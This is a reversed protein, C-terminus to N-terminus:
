IGTRPSGADDGDRNTPTPDTNLRLNHELNNEQHRFHPVRQDSIAMYLRKQADELSAIRAKGREEATKVETPPPTVVRRFQPGKTQKGEPQNTLMDIIQLKMTELSIINRRNDFNSGVMVAMLPPMPAQGYHNNQSRSSAANEEPPWGIITLDERERLMETSKICLEAHEPIAGFPNGGEDIFALTFRPDNLPMAM